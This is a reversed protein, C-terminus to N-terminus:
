TESVTYVAQGQFRREVFEARWKRWAHLDRTELEKLSISQWRGDVQARLYIGAAHEDVWAAADERSEGM